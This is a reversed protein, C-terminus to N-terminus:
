TSLTDGDGKVPASHLFLTTTAGENVDKRRFTFAAHHTMLGSMVGTYVINNDLRLGQGARTCHSTFRHARFKYALYAMDLVSVRHETFKTRCFTGRNRTKQTERHRLM